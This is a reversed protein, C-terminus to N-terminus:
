SASKKRSKRSSPTESASLVTWGLPFGMLWEVWTPNLQGGIQDNLNQSRDPDEFRAQQGTRFDRAQPTSFKAVSELSPSKRRRESPCDGRQKAKPTPFMMKVTETASGGRTSRPTPWLNHTAMAGLSPAGSKSGYGGKHESARPTPLLGKQRANLQDNLNLPMGRRIRSELNAKSRPGREMNADPTRWMEKGRVVQDRLNAFHKRGKRTVTREKEIAKDTKPAIGDLTNPTAWFSSEADSTRPAWEPLLFCEGNRMTGRQPWTESSIELSGDLMAQCYGQSTKLWSGDPALKAFSDFCKVGFLRDSETSDPEPVLWVSMRAPSDEASLMSENLDFLTESTPIDPSPQGTNKSSERRM